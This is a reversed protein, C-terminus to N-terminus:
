FATDQLSAIRLTIGDIYGKMSALVTKATIVGLLKDGQLVLLRRIGKEAMLSAVSEISANPRVGVLPFSMVNRLEVSAPDKKAAVIKSLIDWETVIGEPDGTGSTVIVFGRKKADMRRAAEFVTTTKGLSIFDKEMIEEAHRVM